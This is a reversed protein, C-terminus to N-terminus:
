VVVLKSVNRKTGGIVVYPIAAHKINQHVVSLSPGQSPEVYPKLTGVFLQYFDKVTNQWTVNYLDENLPPSYASAQVVTQEVKTWGAPSIFNNAAVGFTTVFSVGMGGSPSAVMNSISTGQNDPTRNIVFDEWPSGTEVCGRALITQAGSYTSGSWSFVYNGADTAALRKWFVWLAGQTGANADDKALLTWNSDPPTIAAANEKYIGVVAIDKAQNPAAPVISATTRGAPSLFNSDVFSVPM